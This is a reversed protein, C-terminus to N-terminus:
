DTPLRLKRAVVDRAVDAVNREFSFAYARMRILAQVVSVDLQAAIMGTAQHVVLHSGGAERLEVALAGPPANSQMLLVSEAALASVVLADAYQDDSLPGPRDRYLDLVGLRVAGVQIPFGFAAQVGAEVAAFTFALWRPTAPHALYPELVPRQQHYADVGPGEGLTFQLEGTLASVSDSSCVSGSPVDDSMLIIGAGTMGTVEASVVCLRDLELTEGGALRTLISLRREGPRSV